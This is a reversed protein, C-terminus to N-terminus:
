PSPAAPLQWRRQLYPTSSLLSVSSTPTPHPLRQHSPPLDSPNIHLSSPSPSHASSSLSCISLSLSPLFIPLHLLFSSPTSPPDPPPPPPLLFLARPSSRPSSRVRRCILLAQARRSLERLSALAHARPLHPIFPSPPANPARPLALSFAREPQQAPQQARELSRAANKRSPLTRALVRAHTRTAPEARRNWQGCLTEGRSASDRLARAAFRPVFATTRRTRRAFGRSACQRWACIRGAKTPEGVRAAADVRSRGRRGWRLGLTRTAMVVVPLAAGVQGYVRVLKEITRHVSKVKAWRVPLGPGADNAIDTAQVFRTGGGLTRVAFCGGHDM